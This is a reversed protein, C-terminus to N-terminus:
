EVGAIGTGGVGAGSPNDSSFVSSDWQAVGDLYLVMLWRVEDEIQQKVPMNEADFIVLEISEAEDLKKRLDETQQLYEPLVGANAAQQDLEHNVEQANFGIFRVRQEDGGELDTTPEGLKLAALQKGALGALSAADNYFQVAITDGDVVRIFGRDVPLRLTGDGEGVPLSELDPPEPPVWGIEGWVPELYRSYQSPTIGQEGDTLMALKLEDLYVGRVWERKVEEMNEPDWELGQARQGDRAEDLRNRGDLSMRQEAVNAAPTYTNVDIGWGRMIQNLEYRRYSDKPEVGFLPLVMRAGESLIITDSANEADRDVVTWTANGTSSTWALRRAERAATAYRQLMQEGLEDPSRKVLWREDLGQERVEPNRSTFRDGVCVDSPADETCKWQSVMNGVLEPHELVLLPQQWEPIGEFLLDSLRNSILNAETRSISRDKWTPWLRMITDFAEDGLWGAAHADDIFGSDVWGEYLQLYEGDDADYLFGGLWDSATRKLAELSTSSLSQRLVEDHWEQTDASGPDLIRLPQEAVSLAYTIRAANYLGPPAGLMTNTFDAVSSGSFVTNIGAQLSRKTARSLTRQSDTAIFGFLDKFAKFDARFPNLSTQEEHFGFAPSISELVGRAAALADILPTGDGEVPLAHLFDALLPAEGPIIQMWLSEDFDSPLFTFTDMAGLFPDRDAEEDDDQALAVGGYLDAMRTALRANLPFATEIVNGANKLGMGNLIKALRPNLGVALGNTLERGYFGAFDMQARLFPSQQALRKGILSQTAMVYALHDAHAKALRAAAVHISKQTQYGGAQVIDDVVPSTNSLAVRANVLAAEDVVGGQALLDALTGDDLYRGRNQHRQTLTRVAQEYFDTFVLGGHADAPRGYLLDFAPNFMGKESSRAAPLFQFQRLTGPRIPPGAGAWHALIERRVAPRSAADVQSLLVELTNNLGDFVENPFRAMDSIGGTLDMKVGPLLRGGDNAFWDFFIKEDGFHIAEAYKAWIERNPLVGNFLHEASDIFEQASHYFDDGMQRATTKTQTVMTRTNQKTTFVREMRNRYFAAAAPENAAPRNFVGRVTAGLRRRGAAVPGILRGAEGTPLASAVGTGPVDTARGFFGGEIIHRFVEDLNSRFWTVPNMLVNAAFFANIGDVSKAVGRGIVSSSSRRAPDVYLFRRMWEDPSWGSPRNAWAVLMMPSVDLQVSTADAVTMTARLAQLRELDIEGDAGRALMRLLSERMKAVPNSEVGTIIGWDLEYRNPLVSHPVVDGVGGVTVSGEKFPVGLREGWDQMTELVWMQLAENSAPQQLRASTRELKGLRRTNDNWRGSWEAARDSLDQYAATGPTGHRYRAGVADVEAQIRPSSPNAAALEDMLVEREALLEDPIEDLEDIQANVEDLRRTLAAQRGGFDQAADDATARGLVGDGDRLLELERDIAAIHEDATGEARDVARRADDLAQRTSANDLRANDALAVDLRGRLEDGIDTGQSLRARDAELSRIRFTVFRDSGREANRFTQYGNDRSEQGLARRAARVPEIEMAVGASAWGRNTTQNARLFDRVITRWAEPTTVGDASMAMLLATGDTMFRDPSLSIRTDNSLQGLLRKLGAHAESNGSKSLNAAWQATNRLKLGGTLTPILNGYIMENRLITDVEAGTTAFFLRDMAEASIGDHSLMGLLAPSFDNDLGM